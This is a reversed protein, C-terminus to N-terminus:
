AAPFREGFLAELGAYQDQPLSLGEQLIADAAERDAAANLREMLAAYLGAKNADAPAEKRRARAPQQPAEQRDEGAEVMQAEGMQIAPELVDSPNHELAPAAGTGLVASAINDPTGAFGLAENDHRDIRDFRSVRPLQKAGRKIVSKIAQQDYWKSWPSNASDGSKSAGRVKEIDRRPMVERKIEGSKLKVVLYAAIVKGADDELTPEHELKPDDGRRFLFRDNAYVAAADVMVVDPHEYLGKVYGAVMPLYQVMQIWEEHGGRKVKTNYINLVAERGDPMLGDNAAKMCAQLLSRRDAGLLDMNGLVAQEIVGILKEVNEKSGGMLGLLQPKARELQDKFQQYPNKAEQATQQGTAVAKLAQATNSM